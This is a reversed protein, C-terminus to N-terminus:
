LLSIMLADQVRAELDDLPETTQNPNLKTGHLSLGGSTRNELHTVKGFFQYTLPRDPSVDIVNQEVIGGGVTTDYVGYTPQDTGVPVIADIHRILNGRYILNPFLYPPIDVEGLGFMTAGRPWIATNVDTAYLEYTNNELVFYRVDWHAAYQIPGTPTKSSDPDNGPKLDLSFSRETVSKVSLINNFPNTQFGNVWAGQLKFVQGFFIGHPSVTTVTAVSGNRTVGAAVHRDMKGSSGSPLSTDRDYRFQLSNIVTVPGHFGNYGPIPDTGDTADWITVFDGTELNHVQHTTIIVRQNTTDYTLDELTVPNPESPKIFVPRGACNDVPLAASQNALRYVFQRSPSSGRIAVVELDTGHYRNNADPGSSGAERITVKTFPSTVGLGHPQITTFVGHEKGSDEAANEPVIASPSRFADFIAPPLNMFVGYGANSYYNDRVVADRTSGTDNYFCNLCDFVSNGETVCGTGGLAAPGHFDVGVMARINDYPSEYSLDEKPPAGDPKRIKFQNTAPVGTIPFAGNFVSEEEDIQNGMSDYLKKRVNSLLVNNSATRHHDRKTTVVAETDTAGYEIKDIWLPESSVGNACGADIYNHRVILSCGNGYAGGANFLLTTEHTNNEGPREVICDEIVNFVPASGGPGHTLFLAFCEARAQTCFNIARVRRLAMFSGGLGVAGCTVAAPFIGHPAVHGPANCDITLDRIEAGTASVSGSHGCATTQNYADIPLVLKLTTSAIGSGILRQGARFLYGVYVQTFDTASSVHDPAYGRTEFTGPGLHIVAPFPAARMVEDFRHVLRKVTCSSPTTVDAGPLFKLRYAFTTDTASLPGLIPSDGAFDGPTVNTISVGDLVSLGHGSPVTVQAVPWFIRAIAPLANKNTGPHDPYIVQLSPYSSSEVDPPAPPLGPPDSARFEVVFHIPSLIAKLQFDGDFWDKGPGRAKSITVTSGIDGSGLGHAFHTGVVFERRNCTLTATLAPGLRTGGDYPDDISGSGRNTAGDPRLSVYIDRPDRFGETLLAELLSM